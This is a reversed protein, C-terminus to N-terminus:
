NPLPECRLGCYDVHFSEEYHCLYHPVAYRRIVRSIRQLWRLVAHRITREIPARIAKIMTATFFEFVSDFLTVVGFTITRMTDVALDVYM